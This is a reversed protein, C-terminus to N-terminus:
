RGTAASTSRAVPNRISCPLMVVCKGCVHTTEPLGALAESRALNHKLREWCRPRDLGEATLAAAPCRTVCKLCRRGAKHLCAEGSDVLPHDGIDADTVLSGLRGTCGSPTILQANHGFRGLGALYGLHKHSWQSILRVPDFNHTAPTVASDFGREGLFTKMKENVAGILTNTDVYARGWDRCPTDGPRNKKALTERFPLFFVVV